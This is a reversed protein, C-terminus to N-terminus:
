AQVARTLYNSEGVSANVSAMALQRLQGSGEGAVVPRRGQAAVCSCVFVCVCLCVFERERERASEREREREREREGVM